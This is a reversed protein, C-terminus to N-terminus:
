RAGGLAPELDQLADDRVAADRSHYVDRHWVALAERKRADRYFDSKEFLRTYEECSMHQHQVHVFAKDSETLLVIAKLSGELLSKMRELSVTCTGARANARGRALSFQSLVALALLLCAALRLGVSAQPNILRAGVKTQGPSVGPAAWQVVAGSRFKGAIEVDIVCGASVVESDLVLGLGRRSFDIATGEICFPAGSRDAGRLLVRTRLNARVNRRSEM